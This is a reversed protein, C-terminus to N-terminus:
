ALEDIALPLRDVPLFDPADGAKHYWGSPPLHPNACVRPAMYLRYAVVISAAPLINIMWFPFRNATGLLGRPQFTKDPGQRTYPTDYLTIKAAAVITPHQRSSGAQNIAQAQTGAVLFIRSLLATATGCCKQTLM